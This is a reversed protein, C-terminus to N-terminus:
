ANNLDLDEAFLPNAAHDFRRWLDGFTDGLAPHRLAPALEALPGLMFGWRLLDPRPLV